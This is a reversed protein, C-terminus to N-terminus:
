RLPPSSLIHSNWISTWTDAPLTLHDRARTCHKHDSILRVSAIITSILRVSAVITLPRNVYLDAERLRSDYSALRSPSHAPPQRSLEGQSLVLRLSFFSFPRTQFSLTCTAAQQTRRSLPRAEFKFSVFYLRSVFPFHPPHTCLCPCSLVFSSFLTASV